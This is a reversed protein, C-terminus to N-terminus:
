RNGEAIPDECCSPWIATFRISYSVYWVFGSRVSSSYKANHTSTITTRLRDDRVYKKRNNRYEDHEYQCKSRATCGTTKDHAQKNHEYEYSGM